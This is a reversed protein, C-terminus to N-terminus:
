LRRVNGGWMLGEGGSGKAGQGEGEDAGYDVVGARVAFESRAEDIM